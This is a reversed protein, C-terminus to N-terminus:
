VPETLTYIQNIERRRGGHRLYGTQRAHVRSGNPPGFPAFRLTQCGKQVCCVAQPWQARLWAVQQALTAGQLVWRPALAGAPSLSFLAGLWAFRAFLAHRLRVSHAHAFHGWYSGLFAQLAALAQPGARVQWVGPQPQRVHRQQWQALKQTCHQVVRQRVWRHHAFVVYGLFDVGASIPVLRHEDKLKLRLRQQLFHTIELHWGQLTERSPALLVLDDVYRVYHRVKLTHKVFQDLENLVVNAFFQSTLNGIPLGCGPPANRLRKHPPVQAAVRPNRCHEQVPQALLKHCLSQLELARQPSLPRRTHGPQQPLQRQQTAKALRSKLLAYLTPRHISNFFNHVDLQLLWGQGGCANQQQRMQQQLRQVAAHSGKGRRNAYSDHIFGPEYLAELQPVLWHHLVRDAFDPAHIERTKPRRVVFSVTRRPVWTGAGLAAHLHQLHALWRSAFRLQNASPKKGRRAALWAGYCEALSVRVPVPPSNVGQM